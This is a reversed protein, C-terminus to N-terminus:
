AAPMTDRTRRTPGTLGLSPEVWVTVDICRREATRAFLGDPPNQAVATGVVQVNRSAQIAAAAGDPVGLCSLVGLELRVPRKEQVNAYKAVRAVRLDVPPDLIVENCLTWYSSAFSPSTGAEWIRSHRLVSSKVLCKQNLPFTISRRAHGVTDDRSSSELCCCRVCAGECVELVLEENRQWRTKQTKQAVPLVRAPLLMLMLM